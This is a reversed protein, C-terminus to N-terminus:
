SGIRILVRRNVQAENGPRGAEGIGYAHVRASPVGDAELQAAVADARERSLAKNADTTGVSDAAGTVTVAADPAQNAAAAASAIASVADPDLSASFPQFFVPTEPSTAAPAGGLPLYACGAVGCLVGFLLFVRMDVGARKTWQLTPIRRFAKL